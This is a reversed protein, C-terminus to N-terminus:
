LVQAAALSQRISPDVDDFGKFNMHTSGTYNLIDPVVTVHDTTKKLGLFKVVHPGLMTRCASLYQAKESPRM